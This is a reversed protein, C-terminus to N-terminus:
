FATMGFDSGFDSGFDGGFDNCHLSQFAPTVKPGNGLGGPLRGLLARPSM